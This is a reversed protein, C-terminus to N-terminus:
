ATFSSIFGALVISTQFFLFISFSLPGQLITQTSVARIIVEAKYNLLFLISSMILIMSDCFECLGRVSQREPVLPAKLYTKQFVQSETGLLPPPDTLGLKKDIRKEFIFKGQLQGYIHHLM